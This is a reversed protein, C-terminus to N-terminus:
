VTQAKSRHCTWTPDSDNLVVLLSVLALLLSMIIIMGWCLRQLSCSSPELRGGFSIVRHQFSSLRHLGIEKDKPKLKISHTSAQLQRPLIQPNPLNNDCLSREVDIREHAKDM